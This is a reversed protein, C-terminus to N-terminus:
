LGTKCKMWQDESKNGQEKEDKKCEVVKEEVVKEEVVEYKMNFELTKMRYLGTLSKCIIRLPNIFVASFIIGYGISIPAIDKEAYGISLILGGLVLLAITVIVLYEANNNLTISQKNLKKFEEKQKETIM